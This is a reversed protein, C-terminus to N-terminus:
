KKKECEQADMESEVSNQNKVADMANGKEYFPPVIQGIRAEVSRNEGFHEINQFSVDFGVHNILDSKMKKNEEVFSDFQKSEFSNNKISNTQQAQRPM